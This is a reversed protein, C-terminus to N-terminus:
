RRGAQDASADLERVFSALADVSPPRARARRWPSLVARAAASVEATLDRRSPEPALEVAYLGMELVHWPPDADLPERLALQLAADFGLRAHQAAADCEAREFALETATRASELLCLLSARRDPQLEVLRLAQHLMEEVCRRAESTRGREQHGCSAFLLANALNYVYKWNDPEAAVLAEADAVRRLALVYAADADGRASARAVERGLLWGLDEVLEREDPHQRVLEEVLALARANWAAEGVADGLARRAEALRCCTESFLTRATLDTADSDALEELLVRSADARAFAEQGAGRKLDLDSLHFLARARRMRLERNQPDRALQRALFQELDQLTAGDSETWGLRPVLRFMLDSVSELADATDVLQARTRREAISLAVVAVLLGGFAILAAATAAPHRRLLKQAQYLASAPRALVPRGALWRELDDRLAGADAYRRRPDKELM